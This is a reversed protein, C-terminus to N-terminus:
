WSESNTLLSSIIIANRLTVGTTHHHAGAIMEVLTAILDRAIGRGKNERSKINKDNKGDNTIIDGLYKEKEETQM